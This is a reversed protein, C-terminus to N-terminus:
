GRIEAPLSTLGVLGERFREFGNGDFVRRLLSVDFPLVRRDLVRIFGSIEILAEHLVDRALHRLENYVSHLGGRALKFWFMALYRLRGGRRGIV